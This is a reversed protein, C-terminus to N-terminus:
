FRQFQGLLAELTSKYPKRPPVSRRKKIARQINLLEYNDRKLSRLILSLNEIPNNASLAIKSSDTLSKGRLAENDKVIVGSLEGMIEKASPLNDLEERIPNTEMDVILNDLMEDLSENSEPIDVYKTDTPLYGKRKLIDILNNTQKLYAECLEQFKEELGGGGNLATQPPSEAVSASSSSPPISPSSPPFSPPPPPPPPPAATTAALPAPYPPPAPSHGGGASAPAAAAAAATDLNYYKEILHARKDQPQERIARKIREDWNESRKKRNRALINFIETSDQNNLDDDNSKYLRELVLYSFTKYYEHISDEDYNEMSKDSIIKGEYDSCDGYIGRNFKEDM